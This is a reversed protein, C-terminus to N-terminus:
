QSVPCAPWTLQRSVTKKEEFIEKKEKNMSKEVRRTDLPTTLTMQTIGGEGIKHVTMTYHEVLTFMMCRLFDDRQFIRLPGDERIM